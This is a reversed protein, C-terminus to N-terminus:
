ITAPTVVAHGGSGVARRADHLAEARRKIGKLMRREMAFHVPEIGYKWSLYGGITPEFDCRWRVILRVRSPAVPDVVFAWSPFGMGSAFAQAPTGPGRLVLAHNPEAIAVELSIDAKANEPALRIRDGPRIRQLEPVVRDVSHIDYGFLNDLFDYSYMGGRGQGLQALWPWVDDPNAAITIARTSETRPTTVIDDGPLRKTVEAITAGWWLFWPRILFPYAAGTILGAAVAAKGVRNM